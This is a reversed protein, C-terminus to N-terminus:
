EAINRRRLAPDSGEDCTSDASFQKQQLRFSLELPAKWKTGLFELVQEIREFDDEMVTRRVTNHGVLPAFNCSIGRKEVTKFLQASTKWDVTWEFHKKMVENVEERTFVTKKPYYKYKILEQLHDRAIGPLNIMDGIPALSAGCQGGIFTTVGQLIYSVCKPFFLMGMDAHSHADIFGPVATLGKADIIKVSDGKVDGIAEIKNNKVGLSGKYLTNGTGDIINANKILLSFEM